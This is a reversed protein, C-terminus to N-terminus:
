NIDLFMRNYCCLSSEFHRLSNNAKRICSKPQKEYRSLLILCDVTLSLKLFLWVYVYELFDSETQVFTLGMNEEPFLSLNLFQHVYLKSFIGALRQCPTSPSIFHNANVRTLAYPHLLNTHPSANMLSRFFTDLSSYLLSGDEFATSSPFPTPSSPFFLFGLCQDRHGSFDKHQKMKEGEEEGLTGQLHICTSFECGPEYGVWLSLVSSSLFVMQSHKTSLTILLSKAASLPRSSSVRITPTEEWPGQCIRNPTVISSFSWM